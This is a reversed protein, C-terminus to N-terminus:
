GEVFPLQTLLRLFSLGPGHRQAILPQAVLPQAVLANFPRRQQPPPGSASEQPVRHVQLPPVRTLISSRNAIQPSGPSPSAITHWTETRIALAVGSLGLVFSPRCNM